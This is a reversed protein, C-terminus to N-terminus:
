GNKMEMQVSRQECKGLAERLDGMKVPKSIYGDMGADLCRDRDGELACATLAVIYPQEAHPWRKRILSAAELGDIRPMQVDMLILDYRQKELATLVDQGDNAIDAQFGLKKLMKKIVRKNVENDEAILIRLDDHIEEHSDGKRREQAQYLPPCLYPSSTEKSGPSSAPAVDVPVSFHFTSGKHLESEVWIQGGMIEVLKRSIALGLGTGGYKRTTSMDVQSFSQFLRNMREPPIGIGTDQVAFHLHISRCEHSKNNKEGMRENFPESSVIVVVEGEETFKVANSLLNILIQRLRIPDSNISDPVFEDIQYHLKLGKERANGALLDLCNKLFSQLRITKTELEMRGAEIKSFDLIDNITALLADGSSKIIEVCERQEFDLTSDQLLGTMGIVANMPTRIEHSMNALFETKTRAADEASEKAQKLAEESAKRKTIDTIIGRWGVLKGDREIWSTYVMAPFTSGDKRLMRYEDSSQQPQTQLPQSSPVPQQEFSERIRKREESAVVRLVHLGKKLDDPTYGFTALGFSNAFIIKGLTDIEFVTQPLLEALERYRRESEKMAEEAKIRAIIGATSAALAELAMRASQPFDDFTRSVLIIAAIPRDNYKVPFDAISRFGEVRLDNFPSSDIYPRDRYVWKGAKIIKARLSNPGCYSCGKVFRDSLGKHLVMNVGGEDDALYAAGGDIGEIRLAADFIQGLAEKISDASILAVALDRQLLLLEEIRRHKDIRARLMENSRELERNAIILEAISEKTEAEVESKLTGLSANGSGKIKDLM